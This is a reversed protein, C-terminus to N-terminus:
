YFPEARRRRSERLWFPVETQELAVRCAVAYPLAGEDELYSRLEFYSPADFSRAGERWRASEKQELHLGADVLAWLLDQRARYFGNSFDVAIGRAISLFDRPSSTRHRAAFRLGVDVVHRAIWHREEDQPRCALAFLAPCSQGSVRINLGL